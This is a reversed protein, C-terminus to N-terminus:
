DKGRSSTPLLKRPVRVPPVVAVIEVCSSKAERTVAREITQWTGRRVGPFAHLSDLVYSNSIKKGGAGFFPSHPFILESTYQFSLAPAVVRTLCTASIGNEPEAHLKKAVAARTNQESSHLVECSSHTEQLLERLEVIVLLRVTGSPLWPLSVRLAATTYLCKACTIQPWTNKTELKAVGTLENKIPPRRRSEKQSSGKCLM